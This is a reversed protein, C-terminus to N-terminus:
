LHKLKVQVAECDLNALYEPAPDNSSTASRCVIKRVREFQNQESMLSCLLQPLALDLLSGM